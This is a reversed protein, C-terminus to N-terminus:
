LGLSARYAQDENGNQQWYPTKIQKMRTGKSVLTRANSGYGSRFTETWGEISYPFASDFQIAISRNLEPYSLTYTKMGEEEEELTATAKYSKIRAHSTRLYELAPLAEFNGTPLVDPNIRIKTWVENELLVKDIKVDQDAEKEFYSHSMIEFQDRNNIQAYVHGCWEQVSSSVKIAHKNDAVPYFTSSMISYPYIGTLYNKTSNLKLVPVNDPNPYDAKVQKEPNFPETVYILVAHGDRIQGYRAQELQYSTIEADGAYWYSKFESSLPKAPISEEAIVAAIAGGEEGKTAGVKETCSNLFILSILLVAIISYKKLM